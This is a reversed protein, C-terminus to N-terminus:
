NSPIEACIRWAKQNSDEGWAERLAQFLVSFFPLQAIGYREDPLYLNTVFLFHHAPATWSYEQSRPRVQPWCSELQLRTSDAQRHFRVLFGYGKEKIPIQCNGQPDATCQPPIYLQCGGGSHLFNYNAQNRLNREVTGFRFQDSSEWHIEFHNLNAHSLNALEVRYTWNEAHTPAVMILAFLLFRIM